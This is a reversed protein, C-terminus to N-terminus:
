MKSVIGVGADCLRREAGVPWIGCVLRVNKVCVGDDNTGCLPGDPWVCGRRVNWVRNESKWVIEVSVDCGRRKWVWRGSEVVGTEHKWCVTRVQEACPGTRYRLVAPHEVCSERQEWVIEM